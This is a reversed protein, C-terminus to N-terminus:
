LLSFISTYSPEIRAIRVLEKLCKMVWEGGSKGSVDRLVGVLALEATVRLAPRQRALRAADERERQEPALANLAARNPAALTAALASVV